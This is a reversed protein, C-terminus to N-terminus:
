FMLVFNLRFDPIGTAHSIGAGSLVVVNKIVGEKISNIIRMLNADTM